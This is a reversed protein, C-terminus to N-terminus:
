LIGDVGVPKLPVVDKSVGTLMEHYNTHKHGRYTLTTKFTCMHM